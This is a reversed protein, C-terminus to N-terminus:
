RRKRENGREITRKVKKAEPDVEAANGCNKGWQRNRSKNDELMRVKRQWDTLEM